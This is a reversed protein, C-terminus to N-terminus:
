KPDWGSDDPYGPVDTITHETRNPASSPYIDSTPYLNNPMSTHPSHNPMGSHPTSRPVSSPSSPSSSHSHPVPTPMAQSPHPPMNAHASMYESRQWYLERIQQQFAALEKSLVCTTHKQQQMLEDIQKHQRELHRLQQTMTNNQQQHWETLKETMSRLESLLAKHEEM